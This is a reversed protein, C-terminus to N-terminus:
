VAGGAGGLAGVLTGDEGTAVLARTWATSDYRGTEIMQRIRRNYLEKDNKFAKWPADSCPDCANPEDLSFQIQRLLVPLCQSAHWSGQDVTNTISKKDAMPKQVTWKPLCLKGSPLCNMHWFGGPFRLEPERAPYDDYFIIRLPCRAGDWVSGEPGPVLISWESVPHRVAKRGDRYSITSKSLHELGSECRSAVLFGALSCAELQRHEEHLVALASAKAGHMERMKRILSLMEAENHDFHKRLQRVQRHRRLEADAVVEEHWEQETYDGDAIEREADEFAFENCHSHFLPLVDGDPQLQVRLRLKHLREAQMRLVAIRFPAGCGASHMLRCTCQLNRAAHPSLEVFSHQLVLTCLDAGLIDVLPPRTQTLLGLKHLASQMRQEAMGKRRAAFIKDANAQRERAAADAEESAAANFADRAASVEAWVASEAVTMAPPLGAM